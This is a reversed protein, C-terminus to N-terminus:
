TFAMMSILQGKSDNMTLLMLMYTEAAGKVDAVKGLWVFAKLVFLYLHLRHVQVEM